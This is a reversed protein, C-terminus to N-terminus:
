EGVAGEKHSSTGLPERILQWETLHVMMLGSRPNQQIRYVVDNIWTVAKYLGEWSSQLKPSKGKM